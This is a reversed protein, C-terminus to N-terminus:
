TAELGQLCLNVGRLFTILNDGGEITAAPRWSVPHWSFWAWDGPVPAQGSSSNAGPNLGPPNNGDSLRLDADVFFNDPGTNPYGPPIVVLVTTREKNFRGPPLAYDPILVWRLQEDHQLGPHKECVMAIEQAVREHM